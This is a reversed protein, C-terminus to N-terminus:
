SLSLTHSAHSFSFANSANSFSLAHHSYSFGLPLARLLRVLRHLHNFYIFSTFSTFLLHLFCIYFAFTFLCIYPLYTSSTILRFFFLLYSTITSSVLCLVFSPSSRLLRDYIHINISIWWLLIVHIINCTYLISM